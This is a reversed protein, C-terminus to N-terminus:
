CDKHGESSNEKFADIEQQKKFGDSNFRDESSTSVCLGLPLGPFEIEHSSPMVVQSDSNGLRRLGRGGKTMKEELFPVFMWANAWNSLCFGPFCGQIEKKRRQEM